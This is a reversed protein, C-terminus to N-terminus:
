SSSRGCRVSLKCVGSAFGRGTVPGIQDRGTSFPSCWTWSRTAQVRSLNQRQVAGALAPERRGRRGSRHCQWARGAARVAARRDLRDPGHRRARGLTPVRGADTTEARGPDAHRRRPLECRPRDGPQDYAAVRTGGPAASSSCRSVRSRGLAGQIGQPGAAGSAARRAVPRRGDSARPSWRRAPRMPGGSQGRM